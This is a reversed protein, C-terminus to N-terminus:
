GDQHTYKEMSAIEGGFTLSKAEFTVVSFLNASWEEVKKEKKKKKLKIERGRIHFEKGGLHIRSM